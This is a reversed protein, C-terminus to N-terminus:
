PWPPPPWRCRWSSRRRWSRCCPRPRNRGPTPVPWPSASGSPTGPSRPSSRWPRWGPGRACGAALLACPARRGAAGARRRPHVRDRRRRPALVGPRGRRRGRRAGLPGVHPGDPLLSSAGLFARTAIALPQLWFAVSGALVTLLAVVVVPVNERLAEPAAYHVLTVTVEQDRALGEGARRVGYSVEDGVALDAAREGALLDTVTVGGITEIEDGVELATDGYTELVVLRVGWREDSTLPSRWVVSGDSPGASLAVLVWAVPLAWAAAILLLRASRSMTREDHVRGPRRPLHILGARGLARTGTAQSLVSDGSSRGTVRRQVWPVFHTRTWEANARYRGGRTLVAEPPLDPQDVGHPVGLVDLVQIAMFQHGAPGLHLRDHDWYRWDRLVRFRWFDVITAGHRDASWRVLENYLAFRGRLPRYIASGGPDFATFVLLRAGTGALKGLAADYREVLADIDVKPRMIDNGGAYITVLDPALAVAPEVQEAIM